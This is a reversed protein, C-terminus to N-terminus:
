ILAGLFFTARPQRRQRGGKPGGRSIVYSVLIIIKQTCRERVVASVLGELRTPDSHAAIGLM